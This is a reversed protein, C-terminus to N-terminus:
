IFLFIFFDYEIIQGDSTWKETQHLWLHDEFLGKRVNKGERGPTDSSM